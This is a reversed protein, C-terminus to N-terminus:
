MLAMVLLIMILKSTISCALNVITIKVGLRGFLSVYMSISYKLYIMFIILISGTILTIIAQKATIVGNSLLAAVTAYGASFHALDALLVAICEGPLGLVRLVPDFFHSIYDMVGFKLLVDIALFSVVMIPIIKKLAIFSKRLANLVIERRSTNGNANPINIGGAMSHQKYRFKSYLLAALSQIFASLLNLAIYIGGIFPGLLVFAIPAQVKLLSEGAVIPFTSMVVTVVAEDDSVKGAHYFGALTSKGATPNFFSTFLALISERSLNSARCFPEILPLLRKMQNSELVINAFIVGITILIVSKALYIGIGIDM